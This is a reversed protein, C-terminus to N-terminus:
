IGEGSRRHSALMEEEHALAVHFRLVMSEPNQKDCHL